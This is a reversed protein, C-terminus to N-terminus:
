KPLSPPFKTLMIAKGALRRVSTARLQEIIEKKVNCMLVKAVKECFKQLWINELSEKNCLVHM